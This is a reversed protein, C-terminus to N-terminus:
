WANLIIEGFVLHFRQWIKPLDAFIFNLAVVLGITYKVLVIRTVNAFHDIKPFVRVCKFIVGIM